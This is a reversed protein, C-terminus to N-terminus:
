FYHQKFCHPTIEQLQEAIFFVFIVGVFMEAQGCHQNDCM